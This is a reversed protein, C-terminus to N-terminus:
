VNKFELAKLGRLVEKELKLYNSDEFVRIFKPFSSSEPDQDVETFNFDDIKIELISRLNVDINVNNNECTEFRAELYNGYTKAEEGLTDSTRSDNLIVVDKEDIDILPPFGEISCNGTSMQHNPVSFVISNVPSHEKNGFAVVDSYSRISCPKRVIEENQIQHNLQKKTNLRKM